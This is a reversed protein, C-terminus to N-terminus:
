VSRWYLIVDCMCSISHSDCCRTVVRIVISSLVLLSISVQDVACAFVDLVHGQSVLQKALGDYFKVAKNYHPASDKALDKHSRIPDTLEKSVILGPGDTCPGGVLGIIRAGTDPSCAALIGAAVKLASGTCRSPRQDSSVPFSDRQLEDLLSTLTFECDSVSRLFREVGSSYTGNRAGADATDSESCSM